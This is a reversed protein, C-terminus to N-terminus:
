RGLDGVGLLAGKAAEIRLALPVTEDNMVALLFARPNDFRGIVPMAGRMSEIAMQGPEPLAAAAPDEAEL